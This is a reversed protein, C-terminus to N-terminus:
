LGEALGLLAKAFEGVLISWLCTKHHGKKACVVVEVEPAAYGTPYSTNACITFVIGEIWAEGTEVMVQM